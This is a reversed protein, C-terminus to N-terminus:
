NFLQRALMKNQIKGIIESISPSYCIRNCWEFSKDSKRDSLRTEPRTKKKKKLLHILKFFWSFNSFCFTFYTKFSPNKSFNRCPMKQQKQVTCNIGLTQGNLVSVGQILLELFYLILLWFFIRPFEGYLGYMSKFKIM